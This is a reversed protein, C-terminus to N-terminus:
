PLLIEEKKEIGRILDELTLSDLLKTIKKEIFAWIKKNCCTEQIKCLTESTHICEIINIPGEVAEFIERLTIESPPKKLIYGGLIGKFSEVINARKLDLMLQALFDKSIGESQSIKNLSLIKNDYTKGLMILARLTCDLKASVKFM